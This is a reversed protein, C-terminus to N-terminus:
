QNFPPIGLIMALTSAVCFFVWAYTLTWDKEEQAMGNEESTISNEIIPKVKSEENNIHSTSDIIQNKEIDILEIIIGLFFLLIAIFLLIMFFKLTGFVVRDWNWNTYLRTISKKVKIYIPKLKNLM